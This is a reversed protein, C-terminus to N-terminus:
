LSALVGKLRFYPSFLFSTPPKKHTRLTKTNTSNAALSDWESGVSNLECENGWQRVDINEAPKIHTVCVAQLGDEEDFVPDLKFSVVNSVDQGLTM